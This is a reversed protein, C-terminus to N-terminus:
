FTIVVLMMEFNFVEAFCLNLRSRFLYLYLNGETNTTSIYNQVAFLLNDVLCDMKSCLILIKSVSQGDSNVFECIFTRSYRPGGKVNFFRVFSFYDKLLTLIADFWIIPTSQAVKISQQDVNRKAHGRFFTFLSKKKM